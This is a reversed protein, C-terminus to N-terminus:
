FLIKVKKGFVRVNLFCELDLKYLKYTSTRRVMECFTRVYRFNDDSNDLDDSDSNVLDSFGFAMFALVFIFYLKM